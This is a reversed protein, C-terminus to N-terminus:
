RHWPSVDQWRWTGGVAEVATRQDVITKCRRYRVDDKGVQQGFQELVEEVEALPASDLLFLLRGGIRGIREFGPVTPHELQALLFQRDTLNRMLPVVETTMTVELLARVLDPQVQPDYCWVNGFIKPDRVQGDVDPYRDHLEVPAKISGLQWMHVRGVPRAQREASERGRNMRVLAAPALSYVLSFRELGDGTAGHRAYCFELIDGLDSVKTFLRGRRRFGLGQLAPWVVSRSLEDAEM